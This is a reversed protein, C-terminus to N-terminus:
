TRRVHKGTEDHRRHSSPWFTALIGIVAVGLAVILSGIQPNM